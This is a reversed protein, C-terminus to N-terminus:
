FSGQALCTSDPNGASAQEGDAERQHLEMGLAGGALPWTCGAGGKGERGQLPPSTSVPGGRWLWGRQEM